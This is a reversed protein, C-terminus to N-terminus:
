WKSRDLSQERERWVPVVSGFRVESWEIREGTLPGQLVITEGQKDIHKLGKLPLM